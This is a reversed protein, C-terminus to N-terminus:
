WIRRRVEDFFNLLFTLHLNGRIEDQETPPCALIRQGDPAVDFNSGGTANGIPTESWRRPKGPAFSDGSATYDAVMVYNDTTAYFLQRGDRSWVPTKGGGTSIPWKGSAAASRGPAPRTGSENSLYAIWRGDPSFVAHNGAGLFPEAKGPKPRDPDNTDLPLMWIGGGYFTLTRGDPSISSPTMGNKREGLLVPEGAGDARTWWLAQGNNANSTYAIHKGDPAWVPNRNGNATLTLRSFTGRELDYIWNDGTAVISIALRKGDPSLRPMAYTAAQVQFPEVKGGARMWGFPVRSSEPKGSLYVLTGNQSFDFQGGGSPAHGAVDAVLPVPAGKVELRVPDFALGFLTGEHVFVLHGTPLYRPAYGGRQVIKRKGNKLSLAEINAQDFDTVINHSSFLVAQSGPLVYPWRHSADGKERLDTILEPKGGGEPIRALGVTNNLVAIINGDDGWTADRGNGSDCLTIPAGGQVSIKKLKSEAFFGVWQSDPSFFPITADETGALLMAKSQSLMRVGLGQRGNALRVPYVMRTGDPAVAVTGRLGLIAEPGLDVNLQLFPREVPRRWPAWLAVAAALIAAMAVAWPLLAPGRQALEPASELLIRAGSIDRLRQRVDRKLCSRVLLRAQPPVLDFDPERTLVAALTDSVTPAEFLQRGTLMEYPVVGFAWIDARKDVNHGRAQEPSMYAATGMIMGAITARMTLTPSSAPDGAPADSSLAKALGFDLVKVRGEPTIKINAPKLDRHIVGKEHAYELADILQQVIPLAEDLSIPGRAIRDALTSGEVLELVLAREEVGYIAAINPHNLSALVKAEREFRAMRDADQAVSEPLVKIAVERGLKTDRGRYVEGMGGAGIPVSIEYPGLRSGASIPM